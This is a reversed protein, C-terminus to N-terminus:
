ASVRIVGSGALTRNNGIPDGNDYRRIVLRNSADIEVNLTNGTSTIDRGQLTGGGNATSYATFDAPLSVYVGNAATGHNTINVVFELLVFRGAIKMWNVTGAVSTFTGAMATVTATYSGYQIIGRLSSPSLMLQQADMAASANHDAFRWDRAKPTLLDFPDLLRSNQILLYGAEVAHTGDYSYGNAAGTVKWIGSDRSSEVCDAVEFYGDQGTVGLARIVANHTLRPPNITANTTQNGLTAWSDTSSSVPMITAIWAELDPLAGKLTSIISEHSAKLEAASQGAALDNSGLQIVVRQPNATTILALRKTHDAVWKYARDGSTAHTLTALQPTLSREISGLNNLHNEETFSDHGSAGDCISDGMILVSNRNSLGIIAAPTYLVVGSDGDTVTGSMTLDATSGASISAEGDAVAALGSYYPFGGSAVSCHIRVFFLAGDPINVYIDDSWATAGDAISKSTSGSDFTVQTFTGAPYEISAKVTMAQGPDIETWSGAHVYWNNFALRLYRVSDRMYHRSRTMHELNGGGSLANPMHCGTAIIRLSAEPIGVKALPNIDYGDEADNVTLVKGADGSSIAAFNLSSFDTGTAMFTLNIVQDLTFNTGTALPTVTIDYYDGNDVVSGTIKGIFLKTGTNDQIVINGRDVTLGTDDLSEIWASVDTSSMNYKSIYIHTVSAPAANNLRLYGAGPDADATATDFTYSIGTTLADSGQNLGIGVYRYTQSYSGYSVDIRFFGGVTYFYVFGDTDSYIPNGALIAGSRDTYLVALPAGAVEKRVTITAGSLTNGQKDTVTFQHRAIIGM